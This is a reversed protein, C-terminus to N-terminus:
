VCVGWQIWRLLDPQIFQFFSTFFSSSFAIFQCHGLKEMYLVNYHTDVWFIQDYESNEQVGLCLMSVTSNYAWSLRRKYDESRRLRNQKGLLGKSVAEM